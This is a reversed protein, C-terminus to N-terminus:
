DEAVQGGRADPVNGVATCWIAAVVDKRGNM